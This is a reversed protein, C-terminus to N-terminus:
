QKFWTDILNSVLLINGYNTSITNTPINLLNAANAVITINNTGASGNIDVINIFSHIGAQILPLTITKAGGSTDVLFTFITSAPGTIIPLTTSTNINVIRYPINEVVYGGVSTIINSM